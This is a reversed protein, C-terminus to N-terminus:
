SWREPRFAETLLAMELKELVERSERLGEKIRLVEKEFAEIEEAIRRQVELPPLPISQSLFNKVNLNHIRLYAKQFSSSKHHLASHSKHLFFLLFRPDILDARVRLRLILSSFLYKRGDPNRFLAAWGVREPSGSSKVVLIDGDELLYNSAIRDNICRLVAGQPEAFLGLVETPRVIPFECHSSLSKPGWIGTKYSVVEELTAWPWEEKVAGDFVQRLKSAILTNAIGEAEALHKQASHVFGLTKKLWAVTRQQVELPPLPISYNILFEKPLRKQGTSGRLSKQAEIRFERRRLFLWLWESLVSDSPRLVFFDTSGFGIGGRLNRAVAVKGNEISPSIRALLVDGEEFYVCAKKLQGYPKLSPFFVEGRNADIDSISVFTTPEDVSRRIAPRPPNIACVEGLKVWRWGEPLPDWTRLTRFTSM